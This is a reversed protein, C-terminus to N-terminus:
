VSTVLTDIQEESKSVPKLDDMFLLHNLKWEKMEWEYSANVKRFTTLLSVISVVFLLLLHQRGSIDRKVDVWSLDEGNSSLSLNWQGVTNELCNWMIQLGLYSMINMSGAIFFLTMSKRNTQLYVSIGKRTIKIIIIMTIIIIM